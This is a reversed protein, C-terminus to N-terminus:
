IGSSTEGWGRGPLTILGHSSWTAQTASLIGGIVAHRADDDALVEELLAFAFSKALPEILQGGEALNLDVGVVAQGVM